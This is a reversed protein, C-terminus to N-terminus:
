SALNQDSIGSRSRLLSATRPSILLMMAYQSPLPTSPNLSSATVDYKWSSVAASVSNRRKRVSVARPMSGSQQRMPSAHVSLSVIAASYSLPTSESKSKGNAPGSPM